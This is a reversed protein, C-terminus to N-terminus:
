SVTKVFVSKWFITLISRGEKRRARGGRKYKACGGDAEGRRVCVNGVRKKVWRVWREGDKGDTTQQQWFSAVASNVLGNVAARAILIFFVAM